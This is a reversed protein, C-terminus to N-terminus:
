ENIPRMAAAKAIHRQALSMYVPISLELAAMALFFGNPPGVAAVSILRAVGALFFTASLFHVPLSKREIDKICWLLAVGYAAFLTGFFRDESDM